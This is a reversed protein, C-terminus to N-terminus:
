SALSAHAACATFHVQLSPFVAFNIKDEYDFEVGEKEGRRLYGKPKPGQPTVPSWRSCIAACECRMQSAAMSHLSCQVRGWPPGLGICPSPLHWLLFCVRRFFIMGARPGRLSKHTTTSVVDCHEFPQAAEEAAVLGSCRLLLLM